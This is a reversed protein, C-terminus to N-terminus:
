GREKCYEDPDLGDELEMIRVQMTEELLLAISREAANAGAADPDFNVVIRPSFKRLAKVQDTTLSTGCSAVVAHFGAASAGIADMYGEVLIARDDRRITDKARHLNYLVKSKEYIVTKPSNLYKPNDEPSLARGGFGV